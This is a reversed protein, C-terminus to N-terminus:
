AASGSIQMVIVTVDDRPNLSGEENDIMHELQAILEAPPLHAVREFERKYRPQETREEREELFALEMGDSHLIIKQGPKLILQKTPFEQGPFLGLLGGEIRIESLTGDPEVLIPYPHGGRAFQLTMRQHDFLCYAATVYQSNNLKEDALADNLQHLTESPSLIRYGSTGIEKSNMARRVFMTLLSAAMGHGVADAVYFSLRDEDVPSVDYIDGSVWSAPRYLVAFEVGDIRPLTRPLFEKQLRSALRMDHDLEAFQKDLHRGLRQMHHRELQVGRV